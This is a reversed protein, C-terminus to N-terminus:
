HDVTLDSRVGTVEACAAEPAETVQLPVTLDDMGVSLPQRLAEDAVDAAFVLLTARLEGPVDDDVGTLSRVVTVEAGGAEVAVPVQLLVLPAHMSYSIGWDLLGRGDQKVIVNSQCVFLFLSHRRLLTLSHHAIVRISLLLKVDRLTHECRGAKWDTTSGAPSSTCVSMLDSMIM